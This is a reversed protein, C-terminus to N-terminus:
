RKSGIGQLLSMLPLFLATTCLGLWIMNLSFAVLNLFLTSQRDGRTVTAFVAIGAMLLVFLSIAGHHNIVLVTLAPMEVHVQAFVDAFVPVYKLVSLQIWLAGVVALCALAVNMGQNFGKRRAAELSEPVTPEM